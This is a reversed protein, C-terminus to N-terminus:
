CSVSPTYLLTANDILEIQYNEIFLWGFVRSRTFTDMVPLVGLAPRYIKPMCWQYRHNDYYIIAFYALQSALVLFPTPSVRGRRSFHPVQNGVCIIQTTYIYSLQIKNNWLQLWPCFHQCTQPFCVSEIPIRGCNFFCRKQWYGIIWGRGRKWHQFVSQPCQWMTVVNFLPLPISIHFSSISFSM